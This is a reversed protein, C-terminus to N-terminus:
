TGIDLTLSIQYMTAMATTIVTTNPFRESCVCQQSVCLVLQVAMAVAPMATALWGVLHLYWGHHTVLQCALRLGLDSVLELM